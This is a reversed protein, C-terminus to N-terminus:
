VSAPFFNKSSLVASFEVKKAEKPVNARSKGLHRHATERRVASKFISSFFEISGAAHRRYDRPPETTNTEAFVPRYAFCAASVRKSEHSQRVEGRTIALIQQQPFCPFKMVADSAKITRRDNFLLTYLQEVIRFQKQM